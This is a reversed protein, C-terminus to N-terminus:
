TKLEKIMNRITIVLEYTSHIDLIVGQASKSIMLNMNEDSDGARRSDTRYAIIPIKLANAYGAEFATGSDVDAGDCNVLVAGAILIHSICRDCIINTDNLGFCFEQPLMFEYTPCEAVLTDRLKLNWIREAYTFLPGAMYIKM